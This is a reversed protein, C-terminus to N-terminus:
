DAFEYAGNADTIRTPESPDLQGNDNSDIYITRNPLGPEGLNSSFVGDSNRDEFGHGRIIGPENPDFDVALVYTTTTTRLAGSVAVYYSAGATIAADTLVDAASGAGSNSGLLLQGNRSYHELLTD